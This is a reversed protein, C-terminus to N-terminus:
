LWGYRGQALRHVLADGPELLAVSIEANQHLKVMGRGGQRSAVPCFNARASGLNIKQQEYGPAIGAEEPVIWIQLFNKQVLTKSDCAIAQLQDAVTLRLLLERLRVSELM